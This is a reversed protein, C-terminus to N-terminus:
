IWPRYTLFIKALTKFEYKKWRVKKTYVGEGVNEAGNKANQTALFIKRPPKYMLLHELVTIELRFYKM